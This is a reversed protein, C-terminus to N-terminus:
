PVHKLKDECLRCVATKIDVAACEGLPGWRTVVKKGGLSEAIRMVSKQPWFTM